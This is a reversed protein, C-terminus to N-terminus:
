KRAGVNAAMREAAKAELFTMLPITEAWGGVQGKTPSATRHRPPLGLNRRRTTVSGTSSYGFRLAIESTSVGANWMEIFLADSLKKQPEQNFGRPPLGLAKAKYALGQRSVSLSRAIRDLSIKRNSWLPELAERTINKLAGAKAM